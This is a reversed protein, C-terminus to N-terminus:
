LRTTSGFGSLHWTRRVLGKKCPVSFTAPAREESAWFTGGGDAHPLKKQNFSHLCVVKTLRRPPRPKLVTSTRYCFCHSFPHFVWIFAFRHLIADKQHLFSPSQMTTRFCKPPDHPMGSDHIWTQTYFFRISISRTPM